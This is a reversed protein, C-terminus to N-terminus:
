WQDGEALLTSIADSVSWELIPELWGYQGNSNSELFVWRGDPKVVFDLASFNLGCAAMFDRIRDAIGVPVDIRRYRLADYNARWDIHADPDDTEIAVAFLRRGVVIVRVDHRKPVWEQFQHATLEVGDLDDLERRDLRHTHGVKREGNENVVNAGLTKIVIGHEVCNSFRRVADPDNTVLTRPVDLGCQAAIALQRPKYANDADNQPHNVWTLPLSTLVGGLGLRAEQEAHERSSRSLGAPFTFRTPRRYWVSRLGNLKVERDPTRLVGDWGNRSFEADLTLSQPFWGLDARFVPVDRKCLLTVVRDVSPDYEESLILVTVDATGLKIWQGSKWELSLAM